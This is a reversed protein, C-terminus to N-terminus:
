AECPFDEDCVDGVGDDDCDAQDPNADSICNDCANGVGDDDLDGQGSNADDPCNDVDDCIGDEDADGVICDDCADGIGDGDTDTQDPNPVNPCNDCVGGVGDYDFDGQGPNSDNPCNDCADGLPDHDSNEQGPNPVLPCNDVDDLFGDGDSDCASDDANACHIVSGGVTVAAAMDDISATTENPNNKIILDGTISALCGPTNWAPVCLYLIALPDATYLETITLDGDIATFGAGAASLLGVLVQFPIDATLPDLPNLPPHGVVTYDGNWLTPDFTYSVEAIESTLATVPDSSIAKITMPGPGLIGVFLLQTMDPAEPDYVSLDLYPLSGTLTALNDWNEHEPNTIDWYAPVSGDVSFFIIPAGQITIKEFVPVWNEPDPDTMDLSMGYTGAAPNFIPAPPPEAPVCVQASVISVPGALGIIMCGVVFATLLKNMVGGLTNQNKTLAKWEEV